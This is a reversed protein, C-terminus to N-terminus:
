RVMDIITRLLESTREVVKAAAQYLQQYKLIDIMEEDISVGSVAQQRAELDGVLAQHFDARSLANRQESGLQEQTAALFDAFSRDKLGSVSGEQLQAVEAARDGSIHAPVFAADLGFTQASNGRFVSDGSTPDYASNVADVLNSAFADLRRQYDKLESGSAESGDVQRLASLLGSLRGGTLANPPTGAVPTGPLTQNSADLYEVLQAEENFRLQNAREQSVLTVPTPPVGDSIEVTVSGDAEERYQVGVWKELERLAAYRQDRLDNAPVGAAEAAAIEQNYRAIRELYENATEAATMIEDEFDAKLDKLANDLRHITDSLNAAAAHVAEKEAAGDPNQSLRDWADWFASLDKSIGRDGDDSLHSGVLELGGYLARYDAEQAISGLLKQELYQDRSQTIQGVRVGMGVWGFRTRQASGAELNARQRAYDKNDANAINHSAINLMVQGTLLTNRAIELSAFLNAM